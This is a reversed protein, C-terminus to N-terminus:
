AVATLRSDPIQDVALDGIMAEAILSERYEVLHSRQRATLSVVARMRRM